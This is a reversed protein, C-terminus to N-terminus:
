HHMRTTVGLAGSDILEAITTESFGWDRLGTVSGAGIPQPPTPARVTSRSFRPAPAPQVIGNVEIFTGRAANHPHSPAEDLSLVPAFCADTGELLDCWHDRPRTAFLEQLVTKFTTSKAVSMPLGLKDLLVEQFKPEITGLAVYKGDSCRYVNYIPSGSDLLNTGLRTTHLGAAYLGYIITMLSSAGDTMAADVVQGRGSGNRELLACAIGFALYLAGGGM